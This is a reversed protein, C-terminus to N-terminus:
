QDEGLKNVFYEADSSSIYKWKQLVDLLDELHKYVAFGIEDQQVCLWNVGAPAIVHKSSRLQANLEALVQLRDPMNTM